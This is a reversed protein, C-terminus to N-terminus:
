NAAVTGDLLAKIEDMTPPGDIADVVYKPKPFQEMTERRTKRTAAIFAGREASSVIRSLFRRQDDDMVYPTVLGHDKVAQAAAAMKTAADAEVAELERKAAARVEEMAEISDRLEAVKESAAKAKEEPGLDFSLDLNARIADKMAANGEAVKSEIQVSLDAIALTGIEAQRKVEEAARQAEGASEQLSEAQGIVSDIVTKEDQSEVVAATISNDAWVFYRKADQHQDSAPFNPEPDKEKGDVPPHQWIVRIQSM